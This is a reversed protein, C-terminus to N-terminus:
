APRGNITLLRVSDPTIAYRTSIATRIAEADLPGPAALDTTLTATMGAPSWTIPITRTLAATNM